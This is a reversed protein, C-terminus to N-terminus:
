RRRTKVGRWLRIKSTLVVRASVKLKYNGDMRLGHSALDMVGSHYRALVAVIEKDGRAAPSAYCM